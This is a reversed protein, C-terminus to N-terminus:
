RTSITRRRGHRAVIAVGFLLMLVHAPEPVAMVQTFDVFGTENYVFSSNFTGEAFNANSLTYSTEFYVSQGVAASYYNFTPYFTADNSLIRIYGKMVGVSSGVLAELVLKGTVGLTGQASHDGFSFDTGRYLVGDLPANFTYRLTNGDRVVLDVTGQWSYQVGAGSDWSTGNNLLYYAAFPFVLFTGGATYNQTYGGFTGTVMRDITEPNAANALTATLALTALGLMSRRNGFLLQM